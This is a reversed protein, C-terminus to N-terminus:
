NGVFKVIVMVSFPNAVYLAAPVVGLLCLPGKYERFYGLVCLALAAIALWWGAIFGGAQIGGRPTFLQNPQMPLDPIFMAAYVLTAIFIFWAVLGAFLGWRVYEGCDFKKM